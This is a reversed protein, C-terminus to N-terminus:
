VRDSFGEGVKWVCWHVSLIVISNHHNDTLLKTSFTGYWILDVLYM